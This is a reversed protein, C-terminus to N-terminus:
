IPKVITTVVVVMTATTTVVVMEVTDVVEMVLNVM